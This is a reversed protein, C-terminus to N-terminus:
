TILRYRTLSKGYMGTDKTLSEFANEASGSEVWSQHSKLDNAYAPDVHMILYKPRWKGTISLPLMHMFHAAFPV